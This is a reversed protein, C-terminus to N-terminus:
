FSNPAEDISKIITAPLMDLYPGNFFTEGSGEGFLRDHADIMARMADVCSPMSSVILDRMDTTKRDFRHVRLDAVVTHVICDTASRVLPQMIQSKQQLSMGNQLKGLSLPNGADVSVTVILSLGLLSGLVM